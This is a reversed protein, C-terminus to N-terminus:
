VRRVRVLFSYEEAAQVSGTVSWRAWHEGARTPSFLGEYKGNANNLSVPVSIIAHNPERIQLVPLTNPTVAAGALDTIKASLRVIDGIDYKATAVSM